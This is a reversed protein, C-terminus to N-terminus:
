PMRVIKQSITRGLATLRVVLMGAPARAGSDNRGDWRVDHEGAELVEWRWAHLRRGMLDFVELDVPGSAPLAFRLAVRDAFPNPEARALALALAPPVLAGAEAAAVAPRAVSSRAVTIVPSTWTDWSSPDKPDALARLSSLTAVYRGDPVVVAHAGHGNGIQTTGDWVFLFASGLTANRPMDRERFMRHWSRGTVADALDMRLESAQHDLHIVFEPLDGAMMTFTAGAPQNVPPSGQALWPFGFGGGDSLTPLSQYDGCFGAFPVHQARSGDDPTIVLYGGYLARDSQGTAPAITVDVAATGGGPITLRDRSFTVRAALAEYSVVFPDPGTGVAALSTMTYTVAHRSDNTITVRRTVCGGQSEGLSLKGPSLRTTATVAAAIDLMGAGQRHVADAFSSDGPWPHPVANNQLLDRVDRASTHPRAELLLAVAGAVHPTSMSTGSNSGYGGRELPLTSLVFGGPAGLDPKLALDPSVGFSTFPSLEGGTANPISAKAGWRLTVPGAALDAVIREGDAQSIAVVPIAIPPTGTVDVFLGGPQNNFIVVATAGADQLRLAKRRADCGGARVLAVRGSLSGAPLAFCGEAASGANAPRALTAEGDLPSPPAGFARTFGIPQPDTSFTFAPLNVHTNDFSAVSIVDTGVGPATSAYVGSTGNNGAAAVVVVGRQALRDAAQATPYDPWEYADGISLNVVQMGDALAQEMAELIIDATTEGLCGFIRYAGLSAHPAVGRVIGDAAVIGAVHTGHGNCDDPYPDPSPENTGDFDDGVFDWGAVVRANPFRESNTRAVGDGGLAPHDYDVGTDIVGVRIGAGTLGLQNQAVDAGTMALATLLETESLERDDPLASATVPFVATVGPISELAPVDAPHVALALGNWLSSFTHRERYRIGSQAAAARFSARGRQLTAPDGGTASPDGALEVFWLGWGGQLTVGATTEVRPARDMGAAADLPAAAISVALLCLSIREM